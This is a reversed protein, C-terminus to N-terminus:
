HHRRDKVIQSHGCSECAFASIEGEERVADTFRDHFNTNTHGTLTKNGKAIEAPHGCSTCVFPSKEKLEEMAKSLLDTM